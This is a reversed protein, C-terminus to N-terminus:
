EGSSQSDAMSMFRDFADDTSGEDDHESEGHFSFEATGEEILGRGGAMAAQLAPIPQTAEGEGRDFSLPISEFPAAMSADEAVARTEARESAESSGDTSGTENELSALDTAARALLRRLDSRAADVSERQESMAALLRELRDREASLRHWEDANAEEIQDKALHYLRRSEEQSEAVIDGAQRQADAITAMASRTAVRLTRGLTREADAAVREAAVVRRDLLDRETALANSEESVRSLESEYWNVWQDVSDRDYGRFRSRFTPRQGLEGSEAM